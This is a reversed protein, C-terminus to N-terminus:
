SDCHEEDESPSESSPFFWWEDLLPHGQYRIRQGHSAVIGLEELKPIHVHYLETLPDANDEDSGTDAQADEALHDAVETITLDRYQQLIDLVHRRRDNSLALLAKSVEDAPIVDTTVYMEFSEDAWISPSPVVGSEGGATIEVLGIAELTPLHHHHLSVQIEEIQAETAEGMEETAVLRPLVSRPVPTSHQDLTLLITRRRPHALAGFVNDATTGEAQGPVQIHRKSAPGGM